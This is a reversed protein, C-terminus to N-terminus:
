ADTERPSASPASRAGERVYLKQGRLTFVPDVFNHSGAALALQVLVRARPNGTGSDIFALLEDRLVIRPKRGRM